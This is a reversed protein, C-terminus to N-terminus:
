KQAMNAAATMTNSNESRTKPAQCALIFAYGLSSLLYEEETLAKYNKVGAEFEEKTLTRASAPITDQNLEILGLRKLNDYSVPDLKPKHEEENQAFELSRANLVYMETRQAVEFLELLYLAEENSVQKLIEPFATRVLVQERSDAANALLNAWLDQLEDDDELSAKEFIDCLLSMKVAKPEIEAAACKKRFEELFRIQRNGRFMRIKDRFTLGVEEFLPGVLKTLLDTIWAPLEIPVPILNM